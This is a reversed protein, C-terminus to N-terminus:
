FCYHISKDSFFINTDDAFLIFKLFKSCMSLDNVYILFLLSGLISGQSVVCTKLLMHSSVGGIKVYQLRDSLYNKFWELAVDKIAYYDM